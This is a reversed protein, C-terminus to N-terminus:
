TPNKVMYLLNDPGPGIIKSRKRVGTIRRLVDLADQRSALIDAFEGYPVFETASMGIGPMTVRPTNRGSSKDHLLQLGTKKIEAAEPGEMDLLLLVLSYAWDWSFCTKTAGTEADHRLFTMFRTSLKRKTPGYSNKAIQLDVYFGGYWEKTIRKRRFTQIEVSERFNLASGFKTSYEPQKTIPNITQRLHNVIVVSMPWGVLDRAMTPWFSANLNAELSYGRSAFGKEQIGAATEEAPSGGLSDLGILAPVCKGPGPKEKTGLMVQKFRQLTDTIAGQVTQQSNPRIMAYNSFHKRATLGDLITDDTKAEADIHVVYGNHALFWRELEFLLASKASEWLGAIQIPTGLPLVDNAFFWELCFSPLAIGYILNKFDEDSQYVLISDFRSRLGNVVSAFGADRTTSSETSAWTAELEARQKKTLRRQGGLINTNTPESPPLHPVVPGGVVEILTDKEDQDDDPEAMLSKKTKGRSKGAKKSGTTEPEAMESLGSDVAPVSDELQAQLLRDLESM